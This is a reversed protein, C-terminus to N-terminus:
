MCAMEGVAASDREEWPANVDRLVGTVVRSSDTKARSVASHLNGGEFSMIFLRNHLASDPIVM